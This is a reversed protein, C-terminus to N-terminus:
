VIKKLLDICSFVMQVNQIQLGTLIDELTCFELHQPQLKRIGALAQFGLDFINFPDRSYDCFFKVAPL